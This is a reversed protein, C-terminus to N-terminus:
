LIGEKQMQTAAKEFAEVTDEVEKKGHTCSFIFQHGSMVDVGNNLMARRFHPTRESNISGLLADHPATCIDMDGDYDVGWVLYALAGHGHVFGKINKRKLVGNLESKLLSAAEDAIKNIPEQAIIELCRAGAAASMPNANYTGPHAVRKLRNWEQDKRHSIMDLIEAKGGVAGGPMGGAAIKAFTSLDPTIGFKVQAGGPSVRFGTVVEDFILVVGYRQTVERLQKLFQPQIPLAGGKAGTPELIVAAIDRDKKLVKEFADINGVPLVIVTEAANSPIGGSSYKEAAVAVYDHWGHFHNDFKVLKTKGTFSRSLRIAMLTAETGSSHFRIREVSPVLAKVARAWRLELTTNFGLHTGRGAQSRLEEVIAPHCHGLILSGHGMVYGVYENGDVDWKRPGKGHDMYIPFPSLFRVDHTVGDPFLQKSEEYLKFSTPHMKNYEELITSM